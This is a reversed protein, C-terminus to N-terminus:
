SKAENRRKQNFISRQKTNTIFQDWFKVPELAMFGANGFGTQLYKKIGGIVTMVSEFSPPQFQWTIYLIDHEWDAIISLPSAEGKRVAINTCNIRDMSKFKCYKFVLESSIHVVNFMQSTRLKLEYDNLKLDKLNDLHDLIEHDIRLIAIHGRYCYPDRHNSHLLSLYYRYRYQSNMIIYNPIEMWSSGGRLISLFNQNYSSHPYEEMFILECPKFCLNNCKLMKLPQLNTTLYLTDKYVLMQWNKQWDHEYRISTMHPYTCYQWDVGRIGDRMTINLYYQDDNIYIYNDHVTMMKSVIGVAVHMVSHSHVINHGEFLILLENKYQILRVDENMTQEIWFLKKKKSQAAEIIPELPTMSFLTDNGLKNWNMDYQALILKSFCCYQNFIDWKIAQVRSITIYISHKELWITSAYEYMIHGQTTYLKDHLPNLYKIDKIELLNAMANPQSEQYFYEFILTENLHFQPIFTSLKNSSFELPATTDIAISHFQPVNNTLYPVLLIVMVLSYLGVMTVCLIPRNTAM